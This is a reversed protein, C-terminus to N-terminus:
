EMMVDDSSEELAQTKRTRAASRLRAKWGEEDLVSAGGAGGAVARGNTPAISSLTPVRERSCAPARIRRQQPHRLPASFPSAQTRSAPSASLISTSTTAPSGPPFFSHHAPSASPFAFSSSSSSSPVPPPSFSSVPAAHHALNSMSSATSAFSMPSGYPAAVGEGGIGGGQHAPRWGNWGSSSAGGPLGQAANGGIALTPGPPHAAPGGASAGPLATKLFSSLALLERDRRSELSFSDSGLLDLLDDEDVRSQGGAPQQHQEHAHPPFSSSSMSDREFARSPHAHGHAAFTNADNAIDVFATM